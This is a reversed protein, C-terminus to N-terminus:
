KEYFDRKDIKLTTSYSRHKSIEEIKGYAITIAYKFKDQTHLKKKMSVPNGLVFLLLDRQHLHVRLFLHIHRDVLLGRHAQTGQGSPRPRYQAGLGLDVPHSRYEHGARDIRRSLLVRSHHIGLHWPYLLHHNHLKSELYTGESQERELQM